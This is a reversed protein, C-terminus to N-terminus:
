GYRLCMAGASSPPLSREQSTLSTMPVLGSAMLNFGTAWASEACPMVGVTTKVPCCEFSSGRSNPNCSDPPDIEATRPLVVRMGVNAPHRRGQKRQKASSRFQDDNLAVGRASEATGTRCEGGPYGDGVDLRTKSSM